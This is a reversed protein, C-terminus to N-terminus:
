QQGNYCISYQVRCRGDTDLGLQGSARENLRFMWLFEIGFM